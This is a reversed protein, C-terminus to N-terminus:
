GEQTIANLLNHIGPQLGVVQEVLALHNRDPSDEVLCPRRAILGGASPKVALGDARPGIERASDSLHIDSGQTFPSTSRLFCLPVQAIAGSSGGIDASDPRCGRRPDLLRGVLYRAFCAISQLGRSHCDASGAQDTLSFAFDRQTAAIAASDRPVNVLRSRRPTNRSRTGGSIGCEVPCKERRPREGRASSLRRKGPPRYGQVEAKDGSWLCTLKRIRVIERVAPV